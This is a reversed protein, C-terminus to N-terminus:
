GPKDAAFLYLTRGSPDVMIKGLSSSAVKVDETGSSSKSSSGGGGCGAAVLLLALLVLLKTM